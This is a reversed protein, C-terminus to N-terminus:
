HIIFEIPDSPINWVKVGQQANGVLSEFLQAKIVKCQESM